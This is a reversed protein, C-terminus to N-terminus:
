AVDYEAHVQVRRNEPAFPNARNIPESKGKGMAVLRRAPIGHVNILYARVATARKFSLDINYLASGYGDTHGSITIIANPPLMKIGAALADLRSLHQAHVKISDSDFRLAMSVAATSPIKAVKVVPAQPQPSPQQTAHTMQVTATLADAQRELPANQQEPAAGAAPPQEPLAVRHAGTHTDLLMAGRTRGGHGQPASLKMAAPALAAAIDASTPLQDEGFYRVESAGCAMSVLSCVLTIFRRKM